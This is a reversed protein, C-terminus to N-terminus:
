NSFVLTIVRKENNGAIGIGIQSYNAGLINARHGSSGMWVNFAKEPTASSPPNSYYINEGASSYGVGNEQLIIFINKGEL